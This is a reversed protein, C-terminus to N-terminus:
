DNYDPRKSPSLAEELDRQKWEPWSLVNQHARKLAAQFHESNVRKNRELIGSKSLRPGSKEYLPLCKSHEAYTPFKSTNDGRSCEGTTYDESNIKFNPRYFECEYCSRALEDGM